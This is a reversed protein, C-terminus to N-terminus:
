TDSGATSRDALVRCEVGALEDQLYAHIRPRAAELSSSGEIVQLIGITVVGAHDTIPM